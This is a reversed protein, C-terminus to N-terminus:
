RTRQRHRWAHVLKNLSGAFKFHQLSNVQAADIGHHQAAGRRRDHAATIDRAVADFVDFVVLKEETLQAAGEIGLATAEQAARTSREFIGSANQDVVPKEHWILVLFGRHCAEFDHGALHSGECLLAAGSLWM